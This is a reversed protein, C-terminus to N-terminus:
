LNAFEDKIQSVNKLLQDLSTAQVVKTMKKRKHEDLYIDILKKRVEFLAETNKDSLAGIWILAFLILQVDPPIILNYHQDFLDHIRDGLAIMQKVEDTLEAGFHSYTQSKEYASLFAGLERNIERKLNTQTQRGVRTVSLQINIAPRKGNYYANSDFFIHGDTMGMLNTPIYGSIDGDVTEIVPLCTISVEGKEPHRFNGAREILKAHTYFIDGPYSDRGPFRRALLSIERYFKAHQSLDDLILLVDQGLDRFYEAITMASYPTLYVLSPSDNSSTVVMVMNKDIRERRFHEQLRKIEAKKAGICAYVVLSDEHVQNKIASLLFSTKGTKRDGLILERQGKGLPVMMDVVTVGTTFPRKIRSRTQIAGIEHDIPRYETPKEYMDETSLLNGLPDFVYGLLEKGVPVTIFTDSRVVQTGVRIPDQSFVLIEVVDHNITFVEGIKGDDFVVVEYLRVNPLGVVVVIPHRVEKVYGFEGISDFYEAFTKVM